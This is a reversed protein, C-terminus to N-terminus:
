LRSILKDVLEEAREARERTLKLEQAQVKMERESISEGSLGSRVYDRIIDSRTLQEESAIKDLQKVDDAEIKVSVRVMPPPSTIEGDGFLDAVYEEYTEDGSHVRNHHKSCLPVLNDIDDNTRDGDRHHVHISETSDCIECREDYVELCKARYDSPGM